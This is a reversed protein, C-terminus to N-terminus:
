SFSQRKTIEQSIAETLESTMKPVFSKLAPNIVPGMIGGAKIDLHGTMKTQDANIAKANFAGSGTFKESLGKLDFTVKEPKEWKTIIVKLHVKKHVIGLDGKFTWTSEKDNIIEHDIYGPVLPAWYNMDSVFNWVHEIPVNLTVKKTGSPM